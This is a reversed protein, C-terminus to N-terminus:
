TSYCRIKSIMIQCVTKVEREQVNQWTYALGTKGLGEGLGGV